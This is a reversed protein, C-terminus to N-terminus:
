TPKLVVKSAFTGLAKIFWRSFDVTGLKYM